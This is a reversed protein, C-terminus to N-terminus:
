TLVFVYMASSYTQTCIVLGVAIVQGIISM